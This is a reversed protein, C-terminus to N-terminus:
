CRQGKETMHVKRDRGIAYAAGAVPAAPTLPVVILEFDVIGRKRLPGDLHEFTSRVAALRRRRSKLCFQEALVSVFLRRDDEDRRTTQQVFLLSEKYPFTVLLQTPPNQPIGVSPSPRAARARRASRDLRREAAKLASHDGAKAARELAENAQEKTREIRELLKTDPTPKATAVAGAEDTDEPAPTSLSSDPTPLPDAAERGCGAPAVALMLAIPLPGIM